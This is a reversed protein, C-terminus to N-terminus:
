DCRPTAAARRMAQVRLGPGAPPRHRHTRLACPVPRRCPARRRRSGDAPPDAAQGPPTWGPRMAPSAGRSRSRRGPGRREERFAGGGPSGLRRLDGVAPMQPVVEPLGSLPSDGTVALAKADQDGIALPLGVFRRRGVLLRVRRPPALPGGVAESGSVGRDVRQQFGAVAATGDPALQVHGVAGHLAEGVSRLRFVEKTTLPLM